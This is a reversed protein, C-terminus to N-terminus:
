EYFRKNKKYIIYIWYSIASAMMILGLIEFNGRGGTSPIDTTRYNILVYPDKITGGGKFGPPSEVKTGNIDNVIEKPVFKAKTEDYIINWQGKPTIYGDPAKLEVLRYTKKTDLNEFSILYEPNVDDSEVVNILKWSRNFLNTWSNTINGNNDIRDKPIIYDVYKSNDQGFYVTPVFEYFVFRAKLPAGINNQKRFSFSGNNITNKVIFQLDTTSILDNTKATDFLQYENNNSNSTNVIIKNNKDRTINVEISESMGNYGNLVGTEKVIYNGMPISDFEVIAVVENDKFYNHNDNYKEIEDLTMKEYIYYKEQNDVKHVIKNFYRNNNKDFNPDNSIDITKYYETNKSAIPTEVNNINEFLTFGVDVLPIKSNLDDGVIKKITISNSGDNTVHIRIDNKNNTTGKAYLKHVKGNCEYNGNEVITLDDSKISTINEDNVEHLTFEDIDNPLYIVEEKTSENEKIKVLIERTIPNQNNDIYHIHFIFGKDVAYTSGSLDKKLTLKTDYVNDKFIYEQTSNNSIASVAGKHNIPYGDIIYKAIHKVDPDKHNLNHDTNETLYNLDVIEYDLNSNNEYIYNKGMLVDIPDDNLEHIEYKTEKPIGYVIISAKTEGKPITLEVEQLLGLDEINTAHINSELNVGIVDSYHIHFKYTRDENIARNTEKTIIIGGNILKNKYAVTLNIDNKKINDPEIYSRYVFTEQGSPNVEITEFDKSDNRRIAIRNDKIAYGDQHKVSNDKINPNNIVTYKDKYLSLYNDDVYSEPTYQGNKWKANELISWTTKFADRKGSDIQELHIYSGERFKDEFIIKQRDALSFTSSADVIVPKKAETSSQDIEKLDYWAGKIPMLEAKSYNYTKSTEDYAKQLSGYDSIENDNVNFGIKANENMKGRFTLDHIELYSPADESIADRAFAFSLTKVKSIDFNSAKAKLKNIDIRVYTKKDKPMANSYSKYSLENASAEVKNGNEDTLRIHLAAGSSSDMASHNTVELCILAAKSLDITKGTKDYDIHAWYKDSKILLAMEIYNHIRDNFNNAIIINEKNPVESDPVKSIKTVIKDNVIYNRFINDKNIFQDKIIESSTYNSSQSVDLIEGSTAQNKIEYKFGGVHKLTEDFTSNAGSIDVENTINLTNKRPFNFKIKLNSAGEGREMYYITMKHLGSALGAKTIGDITYINQSNIIYKDNGNETDPVESLINGDSKEIVKAVGIEVDGTNFDINGVVADHIGMMDLVLKDDIFAIFDDDGSFSFTIDKKKYGGNEDKYTIQGDSTIGFEIDLRVGFLYDLQRFDISQPDGTKNSSSNFPLFANMKKFVEPINATTRIPQNTLDLYYGLDPDDKLRVAFEKEASNFEWYGDENMKFPFMVDNYVYGLATNLSNDGRLFSENFLPVEIGKQTLKGDTLKDDMRGQIVNYKNYRNLLKDKNNYADYAYHYLGRKNRIDGQPLFIDNSNPDNHKVNQFYLPVVEKAIDNNVKQRYYDSIAKNAVYSSNYDRSVKEYNNNETHKYGQLELDSYYNYFNAVGYFYESNYSDNKEVPIDRTEDGHYNGQFLSTWYGTIRKDSKNANSVIYPTEKQLPDLFFCPFAYNDDVELVGTDYEISGDNNKTFFRIFKYKEEIITDTVFIKYKDVNPRNEDVHQMMQKAKDSLLVNENNIEDVTEGVVYYLNHNKSGESPVDERIKRVITGLRDVKPKTGAYYDQDFMQDRLSIRRDKIIPVFKTFIRDLTNFNRIILKNDESETNLVNFYLEFNNINGDEPIIYNKSDLTIPKNSIMLVSHENLNKNRPAVGYIVTPLHTENVMKESVLTKTSDDFYSLYANIKKVGNEEIYWNDLFDHTNYDDNKNVDVYIRKDDILEVNISPYGGWYAAKFNDEWYFCDNVKAKLGFQGVVINGSQTTIEKLTDKEGNTLNFKYIVKDFIREQTNDELNTREIEFYIHSYKDNTQDIPVVTSFIGDSIEVMRYVKSTNPKLTDPNLDDLYNDKVFHAYVKDIHYKYGNKPYDFGQTDHIFNSISAFYVGQGFLPNDQVLSEYNIDNFDLRDDNASPQLQKQFEKFIVEGKPCLYNVNGELDLYVHSCLPDNCLEDHNIEPKMSPLVESNEIKFNIVSYESCYDSYNNDNIISAFVLLKYNGNNLDNALSITTNESLSDNILGYYLINQNEDIIMASLGNANELVSTASSHNINLKNDVNLDVVEKNASANVNLSSTKLTLKYNDQNNIFENKSLNDHSFGNAVYFALGDNFKIKLENGKAYYSDIVLKEDNTFLDNYLQNADTIESDHLYTYELTQSDFLFNMIILIYKIIM